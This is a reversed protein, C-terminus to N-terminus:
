PAERIRPAESRHLRQEDARVEHRPSGKMHRMECGKLPDATTAKTNGGLARGPLAILAAVQRDQKPRAPRGVLEPSAWLDSRCRRNPRSGWGEEKEGQEGVELLGSNSPSGMEGFPANSDTNNSGIGTMNRKM